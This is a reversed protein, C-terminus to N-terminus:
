GDWFLYYYYLKRYSSHNLVDNKPVPTKSKTIHEQLGNEHKFHIGFAEWEYVLHCSQAAAESIFEIAFSDLWPFSFGEILM